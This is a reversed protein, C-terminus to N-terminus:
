KLLITFQIDRCNSMIVKLCGDNCLLLQLSHKINGLTPEERQMILEVQGLAAAGKSLLEIFTQSCGEDWDLLLDFVLMELLFYM